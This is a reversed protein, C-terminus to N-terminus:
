FAPSAGSAGRSDLALLTELLYYQGYILASDAPRTSCGHRLLGAPTSDGPGVPALYHDILSHTIRECETLYRRARKPDPEVQSLRLLGGAIIAAASTDRNRYHVGEDYFDYWPIGDEPLNHLVFDAIKEAASLLRPEHTEQYAVAFGYLAWGCGRSWSTHAAYGQHTHFFIPQGPAADNPFDIARTTVSGGRLEFHQRNDGPNYHVSQFTSGDGRVLLDASRLAHKLGLQRWRADGTERSAWWFIQLNMMTDIITDDGGVQWAPILQASTNFMDSLRQAARLASERLEPDRTQGYGLASSYFHLFGVDHNQSAEQGVLRSTWVQAWNRYKPDRTHAYLAWLEGTWFSGTWFYGRQQKWEGTRNDGETFFGAGSNVTIAPTASVIPLWKAATRDVEETMLAIAQKYSKSRAPGTADVPAPQPKAASSLVRVTAPAKMREAMGTVFSVFEEQSKLARVPSAQLVHSRADSTSGVPILHNSDEQDWAAFAYWTAEDNQTLFTLLYNYTDQNVSASVGPSLIVAVGLNTGTQMPQNATDGAQVVQEGWMGLWAPRSNADSRIAPINGNKPLGTAFTIGDGGHVFMTLYFGREGAWQTIRLRLQVTRDGIKWGDYTLEIIARVPGTSIIRWKRDSVDSVKVAKGEALAAVGGLGVSNGVAFIDRGDPSENHYIYEPRAFRELLLMPRRKSYLDIANRKDFYLRYANIESEWGVGEIKRAFLAFTRPPYEGRLRYIRDPEGYTITVIRTQHPKLDIQFALEDAKGDGDLDDVQSPLEATKLDAADDAETSADSATVILSGARIAPAVKRLEAFSVVVNEAPREQASLNTVAIKIHALHLEASLSCALLLVLVWGALQRM